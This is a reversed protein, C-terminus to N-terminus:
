FTRPQSPSGPSTPETTPEVPLKRETSESDMVGNNKREIANKLTEQGFSIDFEKDAIIIKNADDIMKQYQKIDFLRQPDEYVINALDVYGYQILEKIIVLRKSVPKNEFFVLESGSLDNPDCPARFVVRTIAKFIDSRYKSNSENTFKIFDAIVKTSDYKPMDLREEEPVEETIDEGNPNYEFNGFNYVPPIKNESVAKNNEAKYKSELVNVTEESLPLQQNDFVVSIVEKTNPNVILKLTHNSNYSTYELYDTNGYQSANYDVGLKEFNNLNLSM